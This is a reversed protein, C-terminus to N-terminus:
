RIRMALVYERNMEDKMFDGGMPIIPKQKYMLEVLIFGM